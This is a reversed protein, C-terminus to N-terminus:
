WSGGGGLIADTSFSKKQGIGIHGSGAVAVPPTPTEPAYNWAAAARGLIVNTTGPFVNPGLVGPVPIGAVVMRKAFTDVAM